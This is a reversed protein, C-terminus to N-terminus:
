GASPYLAGDTVVWSMALDHAEAPLADVRCAEYAIGVTVPLTDGPWVALTRDYYGGGYGLRYRQRDFGVCPILLLDPVVVVGSAPEPIRHHGERMPTDADWAHFALPTHKEGIVPLAARRGPGAAAWALVADRADFEGPLPWYFGVTAPALRELLARLRADLAANAAPQSAADRRAGSLTKRLAVKPNPVPNCAISESLEHEM